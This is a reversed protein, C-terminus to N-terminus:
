LRSRAESVDVLYHSPARARRLCGGSLKRETPRGLTFIVDSVSVQLRVRNPKKSRDSRVM